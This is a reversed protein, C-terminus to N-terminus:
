FLFINFLLSGPADTAFFQASSGDLSSQGLGPLYLKTGESLTQMLRLNSVKRDHGRPLDPSRGRDSKGKYPIGDHTCRFM